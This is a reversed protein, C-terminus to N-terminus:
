LEVEEVRFDDDTYGDLSGSVGAKAQMALQKKYREASEFDDFPADKQWQNDGYRYEVYYIKM